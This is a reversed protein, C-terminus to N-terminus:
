RESLILQNGPMAHSRFERWSLEGDGDRDIDGFHQALGADAEAERPAIRGNADTDLAEFRAEIRSPMAGTVGTTAALLAGSILTMGLVTCVSAAKM